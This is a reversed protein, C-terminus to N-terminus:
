LVVLRDQAQSIIYMTYSRVIGGQSTVNTHGNPVRHAERDSALIQSFGFHTNWIFGNWIFGNRSTSLSLDFATEITEFDILRNENIAPTQEVGNPKRM